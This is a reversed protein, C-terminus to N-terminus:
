FGVTRANHEYVCLHMAWQPLMAAVWHAASAMLSRGIGRGHRQHEVHLNDLLAGYEPEEDLLVCVFGSIAPAHARHAAYEGGPVDDIAVAVHHKHLDFKAFRADWLDKRDDVVHRDLYEASLIHRYTSRWSGAHLAAIADCDDRTAARVIMPLSAAGRADRTAARGCCRCPPDSAPFTDEVSRDIEEEETKPADEADKGKSSPEADAQPHPTTAM